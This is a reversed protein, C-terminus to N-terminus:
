FSEEIQLVADVVTCSVILYVAQALRYMITGFVVPDGFGFDLAFVRYNELRLEPQSGGFERWCYIVHSVYGSLTGKLGGDVEDTTQLLHKQM